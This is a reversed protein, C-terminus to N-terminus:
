LDAHFDERDYRRPSREHEETVQWGEPYHGCWLRPWEATKGPLSVGLLSAVYDLTALGHGTVMHPTRRVGAAQQAPFVLYDCETILASRDVDGDHDDIWAVIEEVKAQLQERTKM